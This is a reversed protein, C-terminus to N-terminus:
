FLTIYYYDKGVIDRWIQKDIEKAVQKSMEAILDEQWCQFQWCQFYLSKACCKNHIPDFKNCKKCRDDLM